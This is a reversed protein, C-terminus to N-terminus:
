SSGGGVFHVIELSQSSNVLFEPWRNRSIIEGDVAVAILELRMGLKRLVVTLCIPFACGEIVRLEGNIVLQSHLTAAEPAGFNQQSPVTM